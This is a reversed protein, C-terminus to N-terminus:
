AAIQIALIWREANKGSGRTEDDIEIANGDKAAKKALNAVSELDTFWKERDEARYIVWAPKGNKETSAVGDVKFRPFMPEQADGAAGDGTSGQEGVPPAQRGDGGATPPEDVRNEAPQKTPEPKEIKPERSARGPMPPPAAPAPLAGAPADDATTDIYDRSGDPRLVAQDATFADVMDASLPGWKSLTNKVVTKACMAFTGSGYTVAGKFAGLDFEPGYRGKKTTILPDDMWRGNGHQFSKSYKFGHEICRQIPWYAEHVYGNLLQFVFYFGIVRDSKRAESDLRFVGRIEDHELLQGEYVEALHLRKYKGTRHALQIIGRVMIQFQAEVTKEWQGTKPDKRNNNYPVIAAHGITPVISLDLAAAQAAAGIVSQPDADQLQRSASVVTIISSIFQAGRRPGLVENFRAKISEQALLGRLNLPGGSKEVARGAPATATQAGSM